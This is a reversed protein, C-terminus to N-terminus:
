WFVQSSVVAPSGRVGDQTYYHITMLHKSKQRRLSPKSFHM